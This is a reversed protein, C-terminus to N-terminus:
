LYHKRLWGSRSDDEAQWRCLIRHTGRKPFFIAQRCERLRAASRCEGSGIGSDCTAFRATWPRSFYDAKWGAFDRRDTALEPQRGCGTGFRCQLSASISRYDCGTATADLAVLRFRNGPDACPRAMGLPRPFPAVTGPGPAEELLSMADGIDRLRRRPDKVLCRRLLPQVRVPLRSLDPVDKLVAALTEQLTERLFLPQGTLMEYLVVGFAWIDARKDVAKGQVQEPSMYAATGLIVGAETNSISATPSNDTLTAAVGDLKALGFDLVKVMGSETIKLNAPKLDRHVYGKEHAAELAEAIQRAYGIVAELPLPGKPAAGEVLEMVLYNPGVDHLTCISPHNLSAIARAEREFRESFKENCVKIAVDRGLRTDRARYVEGMGGRGILELVRFAGISSGTLSGNPKESTM